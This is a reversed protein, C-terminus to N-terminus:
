VLGREKLFDVVREHANGDDELIEAHGRSPASAAALVRTRVSDKGVEPGSLGLSGPTVVDVVKRKAAIVDKFSPYRPSCTEGSIALVAPFEAEVIDMGTETQRTARLRGAVVEVDVARSLVPFELREGLAAWLLAGNGDGSSSGLVVLDAGLSRVAAALVTSTVLLDAGALEDSTVVVARDAGMALVPRLAEAVAVPVMAVVVVEGGYEDRLRLATEVASEEVGTVM